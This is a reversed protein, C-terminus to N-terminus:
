IKLEIEISFNYFLEKKGYNREGKFYYIKKILSKLLDNKDKVDLSNYIKIVSDIKPILEDYKKSNIEKEEEILNNIAKNKKNIEDYINKKREKFDKINYVGLELLECAKQYQGNLKEIEKKLNNILIDYNQGKTEKQEKIAIKYENVIRELENIIKNEVLYLDSSINKCRAIPCMLTDNHGSDYPRRIMSHNCVKCYVLGALPNKIDTPAKVVHLRKLKNQVKEFTEIDIIPEHLGNVIITNERNIPNSKVVSGNKIISIQKRHNWTLRGTLTISQLINRVMAPTWHMEKKSKVGIENLYHSIKSTGMDEYLFKNFILKVIEAQKPNIILKFGKENKLKEKDYGFPTISMVCKGETVSQLRGRALIKKTYLLYKRSQFLGDEFFSRDMEDDLNYIKQPTLILTKTYQFTQAIIGQDITNGRALREIELVLVAKYKNDEILSLVKQMEPRDDISDGSVVERFINDEPIKEKFTKLAYDQLMKEHRELTKEIDENIFEYDKRSKRLYILIENVDINYNYYM